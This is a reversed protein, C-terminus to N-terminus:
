RLADPAEYRMRGFRDVLASIQTDNQGFGNNHANLSQAQSGCWNVSVFRGGVKRYTTGALRGMWYLWLDDAKPCLEMFLAANIVQADLLRPPYFVGGHGTALLDTRGGGPPTDEDINGTWELYPKMTGDPNWIIRHARRCLIAPREGDHHEVFTQILKAPYYCDDDVTVIYDDPYHVLTPVIKLYSKMDQYPRISFVENQLANVHDPIHAYDDQGVWLIIEDAPVTQDLLSRITRPLSKFRAPYSTLSIIIRGDLGHRGVAHRRRPLSTKYYAHALHAAAIAKQQARKWLRGAAIRDGSRSVSANM